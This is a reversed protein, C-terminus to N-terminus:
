FSLTTKVPFNQICRSNQLLLNSSHLYKQTSPFSHLIRPLLFSHIFARLGIPWYYETKDGTLLTSKTLGIVISRLALCVIWHLVNTYIPKIRAYPKAPKHKDNRFRTRYPSIKLISQTSHCSRLHTVVGYILWGSFKHTRSGAVEAKKSPVFM